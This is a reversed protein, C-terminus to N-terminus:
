MDMYGDQFLLLTQLNMWRCIIFLISLYVYSCIEQLIRLIIPTTSFLFGNTISGLSSILRKEPLATKENLGEQSNHSEPANLIMKGLTASIM